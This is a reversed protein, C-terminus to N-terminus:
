AEPISRQSPGNGAQFGHRKIGGYDIEELKKVLNQQRIKTKLEPQAIVQTESIKENTAWSLITHYHSKYKKGKSGLYNELRSIFDATQREGLKVLLKAHEEPTLLVLGDDGFPKKETVKKELVEKDKEKEIEIEKCQLNRIGILYRDLLYQYGRAYFKFLPRHAPCDESLTPYQFTIWAPIWWRGNDLVEIRQKDANFVSLAKEPTIATKLQFNALGFNPKWIGYEARRCIYDWFLKHEMSLEQYWEDDYIDADTFVRKM